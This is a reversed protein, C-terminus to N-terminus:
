QLTELYSVVDHIDKDTYVDLLAVHAAYPDNKEVKLDPSRTFSYYQGAADRLSVNYDDISTPVGTVKTGKSTTVTVTPVNTQRSVSGQKTIARNDPFVVKQQLAFPAYKSGVHALDGTASHCKTCGGAGEFYAKGAKPDGVLINLAHNYPGTRLTDGIQQHLYHSLNVLEEKTLQVPKVKPHGKDLFPGITSGYRDHLVLVSRVLDPGRESGRANTGHCTICQAIYVKKGLAALDEDVVQKDDSGAQDILSRKRPPKTQGTAMSQTIGTVVVAGDAPFTASLYTVIQDFEDDNIKAGRAIMNSVTTGWAEKGMRRGTFMQVAHCSSCVRQVTDRHPGNPLPSNAAQGKAAMPLLGSALLLALRLSQRLCDFRCLVHTSRSSMRGWSNFM